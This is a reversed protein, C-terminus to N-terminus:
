VLFFLSVYHEKEIERESHTHIHTVTHKHTNRQIQLYPSMIHHGVMKTIGFTQLSHKLYIIYILNTSNFWILDPTLIQLCFIFSTLIFVCLWVLMRGILWMTYFWLYFSFSVFRFLELKPPHPTTM